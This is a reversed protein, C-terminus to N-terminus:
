VKCRVGVVSRHQCTHFEVFIFATVHDGSHAAARSHIGCLADFHIGRYVVAGLEYRLLYYGIVYFKESHGRGCACATFCRAVGDDVIVAIFNRHGVVATYRCCDHEVRIRQATQRHVVFFGSHEIREAMRHLGVPRHMGGILALSESFLRYSQKESGALRVKVVGLLTPSFHQPRCIQCTLRYIDGGGSRPMGHAILQGSMVTQCVSVRRRQAHPRQEGKHNFISRKTYIRAPLGVKFLSKVVKGFNHATM